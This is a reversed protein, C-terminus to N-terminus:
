LLVVHGEVTASQIQAASGTESKAGSKGGAAAGPAFHAEIREGSTTQKTGSATTQEMIAHGVGTMASLASGPGFQGTLEDAALRSPSAASNSHQSEGTVVVGGSGYITAPEIKGHGTDRFDIEALPSRWTRSVRQLNGQAGTLEESRMEVGRELHAHRLVGQPTFELEASPSSGHTKRGEGESDLNVGGQLHGHRPQNHEDFELMGVPATLHGGSPTVMSFGSTADLRGVSGDERFQIKAEGATAQGDRFDATAERLHCIQDDRNFDAHQAHLEVTEDGRRTHLVVARDLVLIGQQSDYSAGMSSGNGQALTFEVQEGTTAVESKQDFTLGSTKIRIESKSATLAAATLTSSKPKDGLAKDPVAKPAIAPAVGPRMLTIEVQGNAKATGGKPDYEFEAGEIRDVRSGDEGYLEIKVDHLLVRGGKGQTLQVLKSAQIKYQTRGSQEHTYTWGKSEQQIGLGLRQPLDHRNFPHRWKSIALSAGLAVLLLAGAVLVLARM